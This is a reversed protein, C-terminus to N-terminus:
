EQPIANLAAPRTTLDISNDSPAHDLVPQSATLPLAKIGHLMVTLKAPRTRMEGGDAQAHNKVYKSVTKLSQRGPTIVHPSVNAQKMVGPNDLLAHFEASMSM